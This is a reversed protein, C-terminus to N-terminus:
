RRRILDPKADPDSPFYTAPVFFYAIDNVLRYEWNFKRETAGARPRWKQGKLGPEPEIDEPDIRLNKDVNNFLYASRCVTERFRQGKETSGNVRWWDVLQATTRDLVSSFTSKPLFLQRALFDTISEGSLAAEDGGFTEVLRVILSTLRPGMDPNDLLNCTQEMFNRFLLLDNREFAVWSEFEKDKSDKSRADQRVYGYTMLQRAKRYRSIAERSLGQIRLIKEVLDGQVLEAKPVNTELLDFAPRAVPRSPEAAENVPRADASTQLERGADTVAAFAINIADSVV